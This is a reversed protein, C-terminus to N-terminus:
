VTLVLKGTTRRGEMAAHAAAAEALPFSQVSVRLRGKGVLEALEQAYAAVNEASELPLAYGKVTQMKPLLWLPSIQYDEGSASGYVIMTGLPALCRLNQKGIEGGVMEIILNAGKGDTARLVQEFWDAETYNICVDAGLSKVLALKEASSATGVVRAGRHKALQVLLSGVGGAAAHILITEGARLDKILGLATLGQALLATAAGDDIGEPISVVDREKAVVYEAYGGDRMKAMVRAGPQWAKVQSGVAEVVGAVEFGPTFPLQPRVMYTGRRLMTDAYNIGAAVTKILVEDAKPTPKEVEELSLVEPGGLENIRIAKM